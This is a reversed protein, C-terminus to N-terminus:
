QAGAESAGIAVLSSLHFVKPDPESLYTARKGCGDVIPLEPARQQPIFDPTLQEAPCALDVAGQKALQVWKQAWKWSSFEQVGPDDVAGLPTRPPLVPALVNVARQYVNRVDLVAVFFIVFVGRHGCGTVVYARDTPQAVALQTVACAFDRSAQDLVVERQGAYKWQEQTYPRDAGAVWGSQPLSYSFGGGCAILSLAAFLFVFRM